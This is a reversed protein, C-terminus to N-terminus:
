SWVIADDAVTGDLGCHLWPHWFGLFVLGLGLGLGLRIGLWTFM